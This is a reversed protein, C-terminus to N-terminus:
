IYAACLTCTRCNAVITFYINCNQVLLPLSGKLNKIRIKLLGIQKSMRLPAGWWGGRKKLGKQLCKSSSLPVYCQKKWTTRCMTYM